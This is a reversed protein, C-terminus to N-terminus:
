RKDRAFIGFQARRNQNSQSLTRRPSRGLYNAGMSEKMAECIEHLRKPYSDFQSTIITPLFSTCGTQPLRSAVRTVADGNTTFDDGYAGNLQLDIFGPVIHKDSFHEANPDIGDQVRTILGDEVWITAEAFHNSLLVNGSIQIAM